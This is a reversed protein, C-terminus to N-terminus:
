PALSHTHLKGPSLLSRAPSVSSRSPLLLPRISRPSSPSLVFRSTRSPLSSLSPSTLRSTMSAVSARGQPHRLDQIHPHTRRRDRRPLGHRLSRRDEHHLPRLSVHQRIHTLTRLLNTIYQQQRYQHHFSHSFNNFTPPFSCTASPSFPPRHWHLAHPPLRIYGSLSQHSLRRKDNCILLWRDFNYCLSVLSSPFWVSVCTRIDIPQVLPSRINSPSLFSSHPTATATASSLRFSAVLSPLTNLLLLRL